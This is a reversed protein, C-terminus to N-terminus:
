GPSPRIDLAKQRGARGAPRGPAPRCVFNGFTQQQFQVATTLEQTALPLANLAFNVALPNTGTLVEAQLLQVGSLHLNVAAAAFQNVPQTAALIAQAQAVDFAQVSLTNFAAGESQLLSVVQNLLFQDGNLLAAAGVQLTSNFAQRFAAQELAIEQQLVQAFASLVTFDPLAAFGVPASALGNSSGVLGTLPSNVVGFAPNAVGFPNLTSGMTPAPIGPSLLAPNFNTAPNTNVFATSNALGLTNLSPTNPGPLGPAEGFVPVVLGASPNTGFTTLVPVPAPVTRDEL